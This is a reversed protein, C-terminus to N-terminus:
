IDYIVDFIVDFIVIDHAWLVAETSVDCDMLLPVHTHIHDDESQVTPLWLAKGGASM